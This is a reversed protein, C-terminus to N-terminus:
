NMWEICMRLLPVAGSQLFLITCVATYTPCVIVWDHVATYGSGSLDASIRMVLNTWEICMRLLTVAWNQLFLITSVATYTPCVIVWDQVVTCGSGSLDASIRVVCTQHYLHSPSPLPCHFFSSAITYVYRLCYVCTNQTSYETIVVVCFYTCFVKCTEACVYEVIRLNLDWLLCLYQLM